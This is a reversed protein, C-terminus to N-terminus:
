APVLRRGTGPRDAAGWAYKYDERGRLFDFERCGERAAEEVAHSLLLAGPSIARFAPDFGGIYYHFRGKATLGYLMAVACGDLDLRYLRLLGAAELLPAAQRHFTRVAADDLVGTGGRERWRAGHLTALTDLAPLVEAGRVRRADLTGLRAARNRATRLNQALRRSPAAPLALVPCPEAEWREERWGPPAPCGALAGRIDPLDLSLGAAGAAALLATAAGPGLTPDILGGLHDTIGAGLPLLRGEHRFLPFLADLRDPGGVIVASVAEPAFVRAWPLLWAPSHFPTAGPDRRWLDWWTAELAALAPLGGVTAANGAPLRM